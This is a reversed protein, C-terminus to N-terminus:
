SIASYFRFRKPDVERDLAVPREGAAWAPHSRGVMSQESYFHRTEANFPRDYAPATVVEHAIHVAVAWGKATSTENLAMYHGRKPGNENFASFQWPDLVAGKYTSAGRYGTEVRNRIVWAVLEQEDPRKTESYIVRALWLVDEKVSADAFAPMGSVDPQQAAPVAAAVVPVAEALTDRDVATFAISFTFLLAVLIFVVTALLTSKLTPTM